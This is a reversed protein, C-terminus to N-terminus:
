AGDGFGEAGEGGMSGALLQHVARLIANFEDKSLDDYGLLGNWAEEGLLQALVEAAAVDPGKKRVNELYRLAVIPRPEAPVRYEEGDIKFLVISKIDEDKDRRRFEMVDGQNETTPEMVSDSKEAKGM